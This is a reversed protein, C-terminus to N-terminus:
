ALGKADAIVKRAQDRAAQGGITADRVGSRAIRIAENVDGRMVADSGQRIVGEARQLAQQGKGAMEAVNRVVGLGARAKDGFKRDLAGGVIPIAGVRTVITDGTDAIKMGVRNITGLAKQGLRSAKLGHDAVKRGLRKFRDGFAM